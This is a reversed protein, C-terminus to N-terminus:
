AQADPDLVSLVDEGVDILRERFGDLLVFFKRGDVLHCGGAGGM